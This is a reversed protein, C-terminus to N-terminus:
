TRKICLFGISPSMFIPVFKYPSKIKEIIKLNIRLTQALWRWDFGKHDNYVREIKDLEYTAAYFTEKLSYDKARPYRMIYSGINKILIALGLENPVTIYLYKFSTNSIKEIIRVVLNEHIHEFSELGIILDANEFLHFHNEINDQVISFNDKSSYREISLKYFDERLEVGKYDFDIELDSIVKYAKCLGCGIDVIKLPRKLENFASKVIRELHFFRTRHLTQSIFDKNQWNEYWHNHDM